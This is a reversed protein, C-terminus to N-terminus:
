QQLLSLNLNLLRVYIIINGEQWKVCAQSKLMLKANCLKADKGVTPKKESVDVRCLATWDVKKM